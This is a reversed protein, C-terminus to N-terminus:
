QRKIMIANFGGRGLKYWSYVGVKNNVNTLSTTGWVALYNDKTIALSESATSNKGTTIDKFPAGNYDTLISSTSYLRNAELKIPYQTYPKQVFANRLFNMKMPKTTDYFTDYYQYPSIPSTNYVGICGLEGGLDNQWDNTTLNWYHSVVFQAVENTAAIDSVTYQYRGGISQYNVTDLGEYKFPSHDTYTNASTMAANGWISAFTGAFSDYQLSAGYNSSFVVKNVGQRGTTDFSRDFIKDNYGQTRPSAQGASTPAGAIDGLGLASSANNGWVKCNNTSNAADAAFSTYYGAGVYWYANATDIQTPTSVSNTYYDNGLEGYSSTGWTYLYYNDRAGLVHTQGVAVDRWTFTGIKTPTTVNTSGTQGSGLKLNINSGWTYLYNSTSIAAVMGVSSINPYTRVKSWSTSSSIQVPANVNSTSGNGVAGRANYGWGFMQNSTNIAHSTQYGAALRFEDDTNAWNTATGVQTPTTRSVYDGVGLQGNSNNGWAWLTGDSKVALAHDSGLKVNRWTLGTGASIQTVDIVGSASLGANGNSTDGWVFMAGTSDIGIALRDSAAITKWQKDGIQVPGTALTTTVGSSLQGNSNSGWGFLYGNFDLALAFDRGVAYQKWQYQTTKSSRGLQYSANDGATALKKLTSDYSYATNNAGAFVNLITKSNTNFNAATTFSNTKDITIGLGLQGYTNDGTTRVTGSATLIATHSKGAAVKTVTTGPTAVVTWTTKDTYDSTGLQGQYNYGRVVLQANRIGIAFEGTGSSGGIAIDTWTTDSSSIVPTTQYASGGLNPSQGWVWLTGDSKIGATGRGNTVIKTWSSTGVKIPYKYKGGSFGIGLQGFENDGWAWLSGDSKIGYMVNEAGSIKSFENFQINSSILGSGTNSTAASEKGWTYIYGDTTLALNRSTATASDGWLALKSWSGYPFRTMQSIEQDYSSSPQGEYIPDVGIAGTKLSGWTWAINDFDIAASTNGSAYVSNWNKSTDGLQVLAKNSEDDSALQRNGNAGSGWLKNGDDILLLHNEGAAIDKYIYNSLKLPTKTYALEVGGVNTLARVTSTNTGDNIGIGAVGYNNKGEAYLKSRATTVSSTSSAIYFSSSYAGAVDLYEIEGISYQTGLSSFDSPTVIRKKDSNLIWKLAGNTNAVSVKYAAATIYNSNDLCKNIGSNGIFDSVTNNILVFRNSSGISGSSAFYWVGGNTSVLGLGTGGSSMSSYTVGPDINIWPMVGSPYGGSAVTWALKVRVKSNTGPISFTAFPYPFQTTAFSGQSTITISNVSNNYINITATAVSKSTNDSTDLYTEISSVYLNGDVLSITPTSVAADNTYYNFNSSSYSGTSLSWRTTMAASQIGSLSTHGTPMGSYDSGGAFLKGDTSLAYAANDSSAISSFLIDTTTTTSTSGLFISGNGLTAQSSGIDTIQSSSSFTYNVYYYPTGTQPDNYNYSTPTVGQINLITTRGVLISPNENYANVNVNGTTNYATVGDLYAQRDQATYFKLSAIIPGTTITYISAVTVTHQTFITNSKAFNILTPTGSSSYNYLATLINNGWTYMKGNEALALVTDTGVRVVQKLPSPFDGSPWSYTKLTPTSGNTLNSYGYNGWSYLRGETTIAYFTAKYTYVYKFTELTTGDEKYVNLLQPETFYSTSTNSLGLSWTNNNINAQNWGWVWISGDTKLGISQYAYDCSSISSFYPSSSYLPGGMQWNANSGWGWITGDKKLGVSFDTGAVVKQWNSASGIQVANSSAFITNDTQNGISGSKAKGWGWLTDDARIAVTHQTGRAIDKWITTNNGSIISPSTVGDTTYGKGFKFLKKTSTLLTHLM